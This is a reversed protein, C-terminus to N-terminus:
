LRILICHGGRALSIDLVRPDDKSPACDFLADTLGVHFLAADKRDLRLERSGCNLISAAFSEVTTRDAFVAWLPFSENKWKNLVLLAEGSSIM